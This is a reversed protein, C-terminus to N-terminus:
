TLHHVNPRKNDGSALFHGNCKDCIRYGPVYGAEAWRLTGGCRLPCPIDTMSAWYNHPDRSALHYVTCPEDGNGHHNCETKEPQGTAPIVAARYETARRPTVEGEAMPQGCVDETAKTIATRLQKCVTETAGNRPPQSAELRELAARCAAILDTFAMFRLWERELKKMEPWLLDTQENGCLPCKITWDGTHQTPPKM